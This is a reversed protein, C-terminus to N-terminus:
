PRGAAALGGVLVHLQLAEDGEHRSSEDVMGVVHV